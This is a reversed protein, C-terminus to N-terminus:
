GTRGWVVMMGGMVMREAVTEGAEERGFRRRQRREVVGFGLFVSGYYGVEFDGEFGM